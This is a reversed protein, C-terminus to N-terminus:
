LRVPWLAFYKRWHYWSGNHKFGLIFYPITYFRLQGIARHVLSAKGWAPQLYFFTETVIFTYLHRNSGFFGSPVPPWWPLVTSSASTKEFGLPLCSWKYRWYVSISIERRIRSLNNGGSTAELTPQAAALRANEWDSCCDIDSHQANTCRNLNGLLQGSSCFRHSDFYFFQLVSWIVSEDPTGQGNHNWTADAIPLDGLPHFTSPKDDQVSDWTTVTNESVALLKPSMINGTM